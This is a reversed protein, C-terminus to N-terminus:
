KLDKFHFTIQSVGGELRTTVKKAYKQFIHLMRANGPEVHGTFGVVRRAKAIRVIHEFLFSGLGRGQHDDHVTLAVEAMRTSRDRYYRAVGILESARGTRLFAGIAMKEFYDLTVYEQLQKQSLRKLPVGYRRMVTEETHSYFFDRLVREDVTKLPRVHVRPGDKIQFYTEVEVPYPHQDEPLPLQDQHIYSLKKAEEFLERRFKPHTIQILALARERVSRGKLSAIGHETVVFDVDARSTVVGAGPSLTAAIRSIAGKKATSPLAIISKGGKSRLAGRIFDVQGGVGSYFRAGISDACVQGTLDVQLASNVSTMRDNRSIVFPDNVYETPRFEFLPNDHIYDFLRRTGLCFSTVIKGPHLTKKRSTLIGNEILDIVGDSFMETHVGLDKKDGLYLLVADPIEGIGMQLTAGNEILLSVHKGIQKAIDGPPKGGLELVPVEGKVMRDIQSVHVFTDGHTRPMNPNVQAVVMEAADIGAKLIDVSVGLSCYGHADPPSTQILIVDVPLRDSRILGPIDSLFCPTYDAGGEHVAARVNSGIFFANHRFSSRYKPDSYPAKGATMLHLIEVDSLEPARRILADVLIEPEACGSGLLVHDGSDVCKLANDASTYPSEDPRARRKTVM